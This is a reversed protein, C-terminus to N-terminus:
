VCDFLNKLNELMQGEQQEEKFEFKALSSSHIWILTIFIVLSCKFKCRHLFSHDFNCTSPVLLSIKVIRSCRAYAWGAALGQWPIWCEMMQNLEQKWMVSFMLCCFKESVKVDTSCLAAWFKTDHQAAWIPIPWTFTLAFLIVKPNLKKCTKQLQTNCQGGYGNSM